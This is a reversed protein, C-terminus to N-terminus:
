RAAALEELRELAAAILDPRKREPARGLRPASIREVTPLAAMLAQHQVRGDSVIITPPFLPDAARPRKPGKPAVLVLGGVAGEAALALGARAARGRAILLPRKLDLARILRRAAEAQDGSVGDCGILRRDEAIRRLARLFPWVGARPEALVLIPPGAGLAIHRPTKRRPWLWFALGSLALAAVLAAIAAHTM